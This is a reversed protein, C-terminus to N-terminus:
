NNPYLGYEHTFYFFDGHKNIIESHDCEKSDLEGINRFSGMTLLPAGDINIINKLENLTHPSSLVLSKKKVLEPCNLHEEAVWDLQDCGKWKIRYEMRKQTKSVSIIDEVEHEIFRAM